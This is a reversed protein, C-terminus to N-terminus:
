VFHFNFIFLEIPTANRSHRRHRHRQVYNIMTFKIVVIINWMNEKIIKINNFYRLYYYYQICTNFIINVVHRYPHERLWEDIRNSTTPRPTCTRWWCCRFSTACSSCSFRCCDLWPATAVTVTNFQRRTNVQVAM